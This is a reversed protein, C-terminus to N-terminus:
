SRPSLHLVKAENSWQGIVGSGVERGCMPFMWKQFRWVTILLQLLGWASQAVRILVWVWVRQFGVVKVIVIIDCGCVVVGWGVSSNLSSGTLRWLNPNAVMEDMFHEHQARACTKMNRVHAQTWIAYMNRHYFWNVLATATATLSAFHKRWKTVRKHSAQVIHAEHSVSRSVCGHNGVQSRLIRIDIVYDCRKTYYSCKKNVNWM